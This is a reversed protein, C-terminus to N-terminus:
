ETKSTSKHIDIDIFKNYLDDFKEYLRSKYNKIECNREEEDRRAYSVYKQIEANNHIELIYYSFTNDIQDEDLVKKEFLGGIDEIHGLLFDDIENTTFITKDFGFAKLLSQKFNNKEDDDGIASTNIKFYQQNEDFSFSPSNNKNYNDIEILQFILRTKDSFFRKSFENIFSSNESNKISTLQKFATWWLLGTFLATLVAAFLEIYKFLM